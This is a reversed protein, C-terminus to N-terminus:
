PVLCLDRSDPSVILPTIATVHNASVQGGDVAALWIGRSFASVENRTVLVDAFTNTGGGFTDELRIGNAKQAIGASVVNGSITIHDYRQTAARLYIAHAYRHVLGTVVNDVISIDTYTGRDSVVKDPGVYVGLAHANIIRNRAILVDRFTAGYGGDTVAIANQEADVVENDVIRLVEVGAGGGATLQMWGSARNRGIWVHRSASGSSTLEVAFRDGGSTNPRSDVFCNEVVVVDRSGRGRFGIARYYEPAHNLDFEIGQVRVGAVDEVRFMVQARSGEMRRLVTRGCGEGVIAVGSVLPIEGDILYEGAPIVLVEAHRRRAENLAARLVPSVDAGTGPRVGLDGARVVKSRSVSALFAAGDLPKPEWSSGPLAGRPAGAVTCPASVFHASSPSAAAQVAAPSQSCASAFLAAPPLLWRARQM